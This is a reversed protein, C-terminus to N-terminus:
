QKIEAPLHKDVLKLFLENDFPKVIYDVAGSSLGKEKNVPDDHATSFIVPINATHESSKLQKIIEYGNMEPMEVDLLIIDPTVKKLMNFFNSGSTATLVDYKEILIQRAIILVTKDDDVIIVKKRDCVM